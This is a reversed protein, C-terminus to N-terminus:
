PGGGGLVVDGTGIAAVNVGLLIVQDGNDLSLSVDNNVQVMRAKLQALTTFGFTSVDLKDTGLQFDAVIDTGTGKSIRFVDAGDQGWLIDLGAGGDLTDNGVGGLLTNGIANGIIINALENGVGFPTNGVLTLNEVNAFLYYGNPSDAIVTDTGEGPQEFVWDVQQSVFFTDNGAGGYMQDWAPGGDITDNGEGGVLIDTAFDDGGYILDDGEQGYIEDADAGGYVTDNGTGAVVYDIGADGFLQDNGAEGFLADRAGGGRVVDNGAGAILLNEADNGTLTNALENGVGFSASGYLILNEVNPYLYYSALSIVTDIGAGAAEFVLDAQSDAYFADNGPGGVFRDVGTTGMLMLSNGAADLTLPIPLTIDSFALYEINLLTDLGSVGDRSSVFFKGYTMSLAYSAMTGAFVATDTGAGGDIWDNGKGGELRNNLANGTLVDDLATGVANEIWTSAPIALNDAGAFGSPSLGISSFRGPQLDVSIPFPVASADLTDTGGDDLLTTQSTAATANLRYTSDGSAQASSGYLYRLAIVDLPGWDSRFLGDPSVTQSMVTQATRDHQLLLQSSWVDGTDVNRPHRLGLAHGIEHLLAARGASGVSLDLMSEVDMWVDGAADGGQGPMTAVGKTAAQQSVGFRMQGVTSGSEAVEVFRLGCLEATRTLLDRVVQQEAATFARFGPAGVGSAPAQNVFSFTVSASTGLAQAANWRASGGAAVAERAMTDQTIFDTFFFRTATADASWQLADVADFYEVDQVTYSFGSGTKPKITASRGDVSVSISLDSLLANRWAQGAGPSFWTWKTDIGDVGAGGLFIDDGGNPLYYDDGASGKVWANAAASGHIRTIGILTDRGGEGDEAWGEELNVKLNPGASWYAVDM